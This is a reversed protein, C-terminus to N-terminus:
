MLCVSRPSMFDVSIDSITQLNIPSLPTKSVGHIDPMAEGFVQTPKAFRLAPALLGKGMLRPNM